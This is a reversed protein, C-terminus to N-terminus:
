GALTVTVNYLSVATDTPLIQMFAATDPAPAPAVTPPLQYPTAQVLWFLLAIMGLLLGLTM